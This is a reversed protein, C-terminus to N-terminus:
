LCAQGQCLAAVCYSSSPPWVQKTALRFYTILKVGGGGVFQSITTAPGSQVFQPASM